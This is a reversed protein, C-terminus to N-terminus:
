FFIILGTETDAFNAGYLLFEDLVPHDLNALTPVKLHATNLTLVTFDVTGNNVAGQPRPPAPPALVSALDLKGDVDYMSVGDFDGDTIPSVGDDVLVYADDAADISSENFFSPNGSIGGRIRGGRRRVEGDADCRRLPPLAPQASGARRRAAPAGIRDGGRRAGARRRAM